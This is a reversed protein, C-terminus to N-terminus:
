NLGLFTFRRLDKDRLLAFICLLRVSSSNENQPRPCTKTGGVAFGHLVAPESSIRHPLVGIRGVVSVHDWEHEM